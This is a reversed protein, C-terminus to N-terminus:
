EHPLRIAHSATIGSSRLKPTAYTSFVEYQCSYQRYRSGFATVFMVAATRPTNTSMMGGEATPFVLEFKSKAIAAELYPRLQTAIPV